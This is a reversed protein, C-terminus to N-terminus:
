RQTALSDVATSHTCWGQLQRSAGCMEVTMKSKVCRITSMFFYAGKKHTCVKQVHPGLVNDM